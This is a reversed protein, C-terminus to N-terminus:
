NLGETMLMREQHIKKKRKCLKIGKLEALKDVFEEFVLDRPMPVVTISPHPEVDIGWDKSNDPLLDRKETMLALVDAKKVAAKIEPPVPYELDFYNHILRDINDEIETFGDIAEKSISNKMPTTLDGIYAEIADHILGYEYWKSPMLDAVLISHQAVSYFEKTHGNYRCQNTLAHAIDWCNIDEIRPNKIDFTGGTATVMFTAMTKVM